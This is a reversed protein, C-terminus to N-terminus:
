CLHRAPVSLRRRSSDAKWGASPSPRNGGDGMLVRLSDLQQWQGDLSLLSGIEFTGTGVDMSRAIQCWERLYREVTWENDSNDVIFLDSGKPMNPM